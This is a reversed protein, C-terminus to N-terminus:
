GRAHQAWKKGLYAEIVAPDGAVEDPSGDAIVAGHDLVLFRDVLPMMAAVTHEIVIITIGDDRLRALLDVLRRTDEAGLGALFEDILLIRPRGALARALEMQRLQTTDLESASLHDRGQLGVKALAQLAQQRADAANSTSAFAAIEVNQLLSMRSLPRVVQFTRGVGRRCIRNPKKGTVAAGAVFISGEDPKIFGNMVNFLTTKGAGNPGIIGLIERQAVDFTVGDLALLGHFRKSVNDVSVIPATPDIEEPDYASRFVVPEVVRKPAEEKEEPEARGQRERMIKRFVLDRVRWYIGEPAFLIILILALGFMVGNIGPLEAGFRSILYDDLSILLAAGIVPGWVTATGGVIPIVLAQVSVIIGFVNNPTVVLLVAIYIAGAGAALAASIASASMKVRFSDIGAAEAAHEDDRVARLSHGLRSREVAVTIVVAGCLLALAVLSMNRPDAFQLYWGGNELKFPLAVEQYGLYLMVPQFVLPYALTALSFYIGSLRFTPWGILLAAIVALVIGLWMGILPSIGWLSFLLISTYAGIGFFAAHGFSLQGGYGGLINWSLGVTAWIFVLTVLRQQSATGSMAIVAAGATAIVFVPAWGRVLRM